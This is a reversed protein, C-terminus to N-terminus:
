ETPPLRLLRVLNSPTHGRPHDYDGSPRTLYQDALDPLAFLQAILRTLMEDCRHPWRVLTTRNESGDEGVGEIIEIVRGGASRGDVVVATAAPHYEHVLEAIRAVRDTPPLELLWSNGESAANRTVASWATSRVPALADQLDAAIRDAHEALPHGDDDIRCDWLWPCTGLPSSQAGLVGHLDLERTRGNYAFTVYVAEPCAARVYAAVHDVIALAHAQEAALRRHALEERQRATRALHNTTSTM